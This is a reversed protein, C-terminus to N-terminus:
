NNEPKAPKKGFADEFILGIQRKVEDLDIANRYGCRLCVSFDRDSSVGIRKFCKECYFTLINKPISSM